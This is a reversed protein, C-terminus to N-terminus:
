HLGCNRLQRNPLYSPAHNNHIWQENRLQRNPLYCKKVGGGSKASNRLQRNPLYRAEDIVVLAGENRLQRNPLYRIVITSRRLFTKELSGIRCTVAIHKWIKSM